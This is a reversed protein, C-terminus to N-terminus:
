KRNTEDARIMREQTDCLPQIDCQDCIVRPHEECDKIYDDKKIEKPRTKMELEHIMKPESRYIQKKASLTSSNTEYIRVMREQTDCLPQIDCQDSIVRPQEKCDKIHSDKKTKKPCTKMELEYITKPEFRYKYEKALFTFSNSLKERNHEEPGVNTGVEM